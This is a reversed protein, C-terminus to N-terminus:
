GAPAAIAVIVENRRLFWPTFPGDYVAFAPTGLVAAGAAKLRELLAAEQERYRSESSRGSYTRAAVWHEDIRRVRVESDLPQPATEATFRAPLVFQMLYRGPEATSQTLVPATMEISQGVPRSVVPVTMEVKQRQTNNGSIYDFLRGFAANRAPDFNGAVETEVVWYPAYRRIEYGDLTRVVEYTPQEYAMTQGATATAALAAFAGLARRRPIPNM